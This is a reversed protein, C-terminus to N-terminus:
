ITLEMHPSTIERILTISIICHILRKNDTITLLLRVGLFSKKIGKSKRYSKTHFKSNEDM